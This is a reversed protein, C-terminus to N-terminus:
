RAVKSRDSESRTDKMACKQLIRSQQYEHSGVLFECLVFASSVALRAHHLAPNYKRAHRDSAKNAVEYLGAVIKQLGNLIPKLSNDISPESPDLNLTKKIKGYLTRIDGETDKYPTHTESLLHNLLEEVLTYANSIAGALDGTEIKSNAKTVQENVAEYNIGLLNQPPIPSGVTSRLEFYPPGKVSKNGEMWGGAYEIVLRMGDRSLLKNFGAALSEPDFDREDWFDFAALVIEKIKETGNFKRLKRLVYHGRTPFGAGYLDREGFDHFFEILHRGTRYPSEGSDGTIIETLRERTRQRLNM